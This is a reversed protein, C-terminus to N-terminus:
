SSSTATKVSLRILRNSGSNITTNPTITPKMTMASKRGSTLKISFNDHPLNCTVPSLPYDASSASPTESQLSYGTVQLRYGKRTGGHFVARELEAGKM